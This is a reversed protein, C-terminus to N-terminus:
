WNAISAHIAAASLFVSKNRNLWKLKPNNIIVTVRGHNGCGWSYKHLKHLYISCPYLFLSSFFNLHPLVSQPPLIFGPTFPLRCTRCIKCFDNLCLIISWHFFLSLLKSCTAQLHTLRLALLYTFLHEQTILSICNLSVVLYWKM